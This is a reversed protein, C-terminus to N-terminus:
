DTGEVPPTPGNTIEIKAPTNVVVATPMVGTETITTVKSPTSHMKAMELELEHQKERLRTNEGRLGDRESRLETVEKQLREVDSGLKDIEKTLRDILRSNEQWLENANSTAVSGSAIRKNSKYTMYGGFVIGVVGVLSSIIMPLIYIYSGPM